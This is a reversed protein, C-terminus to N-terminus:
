NFRVDGNPDYSAARYTAYPLKLLPLDARKDFQLGPKAPAAQAIAALSLLAYAISAKM